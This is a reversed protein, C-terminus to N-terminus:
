GTSRRSCRSIVEGDRAKVLPLYRMFQITDGMGQEAHILLRRGTSYDGRWCPQAFDRDIRPGRRQRLRWEYDAWGEAFRGQRLLSAGRFVHADVHDPEIAIARSSSRHSRQRAWSRKGDRRSQVLGAANGPDLRLAERLATERRQWIAPEILPRCGSQELERGSRSPRARPPCLDRGGGRWRGRYVFCAALQQSNAPSHPDLALAQRYAEVAARFERNDLLALGLNRWASADRPALETARRFSAIAAARNGLAMQVAGLNPLAQVDQPQLALARGILM